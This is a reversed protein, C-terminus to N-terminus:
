IELTRAVLLYDRDKDDIWGLDVVVAHTGTEAVTCVGAGAFECLWEGSPGLVHL